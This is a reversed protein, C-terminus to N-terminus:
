QDDIATETKATRRSRLLGLLSRKKQAPSGLVSEMPSGLNSEAAAALHRGVAPSPPRPSPAGNRLLVHLPLQNVQPPKSLAAYAHAWEAALARQADEIPVASFSATKPNEKVLGWKVLKPLADEVAFDIRLGFHEELFAECLQDLEEQSVEEGHMLQSFMCTPSHHQASMSLQQYSQLSGGSAEAPQKAPKDLSPLDGPLMPDDPLLTYALVAEKLQQEAMDEQEYAAGVPTLPPHPKLAAPQLPRLVASVRRLQLLMSVVGEQADTTKDYLLNTMTQIMQSREAQMSSYMQGCRAGVVTVASWLTQVDLVGATWLTTIAAVFAALAQVVLSIISMMKLYVKKDPMITELDAMPIDHFAKIHINRRALIDKLRESTSRARVAVKSGAKRGQGSARYLVVVEKFTPEQIKLHRPLAALVARASPMLRRLCRREVVQLALVRCAPGAQLWPAQGSAGGAKANRHVPAADQLLEPAEGVQQVGAPALCSRAPPPRAAAQTGPQPALPAEPGPGPAKHRRLSPLRARLWALCAALPQVLLYQALLDVKQGSGGVGVKQSIYLGSDEAMGVGRHFVLVRDACAPLRSRLARAEPSSQWFSTLLRPDMYGWNVDVPLDFMFSESVALQWEEQSLLHFRAAAMLQILDAVLRQERNDLDAKHPLASGLRCMMQQGKAGLSFALFNKKLNRRLTMFEQAFLSELLAALEQYRQRSSISLGGKVIALLESFQVSIHREPPCVITCPEASALPM